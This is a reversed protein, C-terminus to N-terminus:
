LMGGVLGVLAKTGWRVRRGGGKWEQAHQRLGKVEDGLKKRLGDSAGDSSAVMIFGLETDLHASRSNLNSSGFLTLVPDDKPHPSLWIGKAHYTWGPRYWESLQVGHGVENGEESFTTQWARRSRLIGAWFRQELHTYGEPIRGSIGSSGYFGNAKPSAVLIRCDARSLRVFEQYRKYLGFYGSTLDMLPTATGNNANSTSLHKFLQALCREEERVGFQGGQIMPFIWIDPKEHGNADSLAQSEVLQNKQFTRLAAGTSQEMNEPHISSNPWTISPNPDDCNASIGLRFCSSEMTRLFAVCYQALHSSTFHLYRDQRNTFYSENLNAGSIIVEDDVGYIKAHWTGWGEDFRRPVLKAMIGKLKPSKFLNVHVREPYLKLLPLLLRVTSSAGPRTSRNYDLHLHLKLSPNSQLAAGLTDILQTESSGIYLSSIFIRERARRIMGLLTRSFDQPQSYIRINKSSLPFCPQTWSLDLAFNRISPHLRETPLVQGYCRSLFLRLPARCLKQRIFM